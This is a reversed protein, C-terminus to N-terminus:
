DFEVRASIPMIQVWTRGSKILVEQNDEDFFSIRGNTRKWSIEEKNGNAFLYGRGGSDLDVSLRGVDDIVDTDAHIVVINEATLQEGTEALHARDNIYRNYRNETKDYIYSVQYNGWYYLNIEETLEADKKAASSNGANFDFKYASLDRQWDLDRIYDIIREYGTYLNHPMSRDSSRWYYKSRSIEDLHLVDDASIRAYGGPSAGAHLLVAGHEASLDGIYDRVSRIPGIKEPLQNYYVPLFRTIGGEALVEYVLYAEELGAQPRSKPHNEVAVMVPRKLLQRDGLHYYEPLLINSQVSTNFNKDYFNFYAQYDLKYFVQYMGDAVKGTESQFFCGATGLLIITILLTFVFYKRYNM